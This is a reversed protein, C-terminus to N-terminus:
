KGLKSIVQYIIRVNSEEMEVELMKGPRRGGNSLFAEVVVVVVSLM